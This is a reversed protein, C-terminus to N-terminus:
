RHKENEDKEGSYKKVFCYRKHASLAKVNRFWRNCYECQQMDSCDWKM